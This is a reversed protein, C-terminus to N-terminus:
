FVIISSPSHKDSFTCWQMSIDTLDSLMKKQLCKKKKQITQKASTHKASKDINANTSSKTIITKILTNV